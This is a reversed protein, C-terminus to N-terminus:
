RNEDVLTLFTNRDFRAVGSPVKAVELGIANLAERCQAPTLGMMSADYMSFLTEVDTPDFFNLPSTPDKADKLQTLMEVLYKRPDAPRDRVLQEGMLEFLQMVKHAKLYKEAQLSPDNEARAKRVNSEAAPDTREKRGRFNAQIRSSAKSLEAKEEKAKKRQVYGKACAGLRASAEAEKAAEEAERKATAEARKAQVVARSDKGRKLAQVKSAAASEEAKQKAVAGRAQQGRKMAQLKSAAADEDMSNGKKGLSGSPHQPSSASPQTCHV